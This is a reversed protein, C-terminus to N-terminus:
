SLGRCNKKSKVCYLNSILYFRATFGYVNKTIGSHWFRDNELVVFEICAIEVVFKLDQQFKYGFLLFRRRWWDIRLTKNLFPEKVTEAVNYFSAFTVELLHFLTLCLAAALCVFHTINVFDDVTLINRSPKIRTSM